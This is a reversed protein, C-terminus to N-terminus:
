ELLLFYVLLLLLPLQRLHHNQKIKKFYVILFIFMFFLYTYIKRFEHEKKYERQIEFTLARILHSNQKRLGNVISINSALRSILERNNTIAHELEIHHASKNRVLEGIPAIIFLTM